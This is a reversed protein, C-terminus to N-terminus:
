RNRKLLGFLIKNMKEREYNSFSFIYAVILFISLSLVYTLLFRYEHEISTCIFYCSLVSIMVPPITHLIVSKCFGTIYFGIEKRICYIRLFVCLIEVVVMLYFIPILSADMKLSVWGLPIILLKPTYTVFTYKGINGIARNALALGSSLMDIIQMTIFMCAFLATNIPVEVLWIGLLNKIEFMTPIGLMAMLLFSFKSQIEALKWMRERDGGGEAAMLQPAIANNFSTSVFSIMGSIQMGIGYAANVTTGLMKNLVIAFGQTRFAIIGSSYMVWGTFSSLEKVYSVSFHKLRPIICEEYKYYCFIAFSMLNFLQIFFLIWGYAMLKDIMIFPLFLVTIVKLIGDLVDVVSTYIINERSILLARFPSTIFSIYVMTIVLLYLSRAVHERGAPINLFGDFLFPTLIALVCTIGLGLFIHLLLSNGFVEKLEEIHGRGQHVSLFRQTSGVLSNTLFSLMSVVGAVLSYVGYDDIGLIDLVLRSSYLGLVMNIITRIYQTLTNVIIRNSAQM